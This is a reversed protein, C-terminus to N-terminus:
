YEYYIYKLMIDKQDEPIKTLNSILWGTNYGKRNFESLEFYWDKVQFFHFRVKQITKFVLDGKKVEYLLLTRFDPKYNEDFYYEVTEKDKFVKILNMFDLEHSMPHLFKSRASSDNYFLETFPYFYVEKIVWKTGLNEKELEMFLIVTRLNGQYYFKANVEAFWKGGYFDLLQPSRKETVDKIFDSKLADTININSNDFLMNIYKKRNETNHYNSNGDFIRKGTIDEESNFRRFFQSIQKTAAYMFKEHGLYESIEQARSVGISLSFCIAFIAIVKM